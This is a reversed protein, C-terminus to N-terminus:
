TKKVTSFNYSYYNHLNQLCHKCNKLYHSAMRNTFIHISTSTLIVYKNIQLAQQGENLMQQKCSIFKSEWANTTQLQIQQVM